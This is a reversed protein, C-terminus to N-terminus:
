EEVPVSFYRGVLLGAIAAVTSAVLVACKSTTLLVPDPFALNAIFISMTFGIGGLCGLLVLHRWRVGEPLTAVGSRIAAAAGAFIGVPKGIVLALIIGLGVTRPAGPGFSLAKFSVGANALAFLPMIAYAVWPHLSRRLHSSRATAPATLGLVVGALAPHIGAQLLGLWVLGAPLIYAPAWLVGLLQM